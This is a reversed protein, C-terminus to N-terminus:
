CSLVPLPGATMAPMRLRAMVRSRRAPQSLMASAQRCWELCRSRVTLSSRVVQFVVKVLRTGHVFSHLTSHLPLANRSKNPATCSIFTQGKPTARRPSAGFWWMSRQSFVTTTLSTSFADNPTLHPDPLRTFGFRQLRTTVFSTVDFGHGHSPSRSNPKASHGIVPWATDPMSVAHAQDAPRARFM